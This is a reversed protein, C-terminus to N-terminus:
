APSRVGPSSMRENFESAVDCQHIKAPIVEREPGPELKDAEIKWRQKQELLRHGLKQSVTIRRTEM